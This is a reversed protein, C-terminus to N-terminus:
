YEHMRARAAQFLGNLGEIRAINHLEHWLWTLAPGTELGIRKAGAAKTKIFAAIATLAPAFNSWQPPAFSSSRPHHLARNERNERYDL